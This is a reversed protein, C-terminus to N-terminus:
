PVGLRPARRLSTLFVRLANRDETSLETWAQRVAAAEGGHRRIAHDVTAAEGDHFYPASDGVGWLRRTLYLRPAIGGHMHQSANEAGLDHRKFDSFVFAQYAGSAPDRTIRPAEAQTALDVAFTGGTVPSTIAATARTLPLSPVHCSACGLTDFVERGRVWEDVLYPQVPGAPDARDVPAEHPTMIPLELSAVYVSLATLQGTTLEAAVSDALELPDASAAAHLAADETEVGFHLATAETVMEHITAATGKWGFPRVVLDPDIGRVDRTDVNGRADVHLTGFAIGKAVLEVEIAAETRRARAIADARLAALEATMEEGLAQAVGSGILSPPNRADASTVRDGDGRLLANDTYGGAGGAGGRWHCSTCSTTEPGGRRGVQVRRFPEDPIFDHAFLIRGVEYLEQGCVQDRDIRAQDAVLATERLVYGPEIAERYRLRQRLAGRRHAERAADLGMGTPPPALHSCERVTPPPLNDGCAALVLLLAYRNV